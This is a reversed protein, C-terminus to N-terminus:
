YLLVQRAYGRRRVAGFVRNLSDEMTSLLSIATWIFLFAGIPGIRAFTLQGRVGEVLSLIEDAVNIVKLDDPRTTANPETATADRNEPLAAIQSFGTAELFDRLSRKSDELAGIAGAVLVALVLAPVLAFITRFSLAAAMAPLNNRQLRNVCFRWLRVQFRAFRALRGLEEGPQTILRRVHQNVQSDRM